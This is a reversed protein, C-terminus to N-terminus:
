NHDHTRVCYVGVQCQRRDITRFVGVDEHKGPPCDVSSSVQRVNTLRLFRSRVKITGYNALTEKLEQCTVQKSEIVPVEAFSSLSMTLTFLLFIIQM